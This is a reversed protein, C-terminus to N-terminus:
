IAVAGHILLASISPVYVQECLEQEVEKIHEYDDSEIGWLSEDVDTEVDTVVIGIYYWEDNCWGRVRQFDQEVAAELVQGKTPCRRLKATLAMFDNIGLGWGDKKAKIMSAQWDYYRYSKGDKCLVREGPAKDRCVWGSVGEQWPPGADADYFHEILLERGQHIITEEHFSKNIM